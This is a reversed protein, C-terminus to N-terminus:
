NTTDLAQWGGKQRFRPGLHGLQLSCTEDNKVNSLMRKFLEHWIITKVDENEHFNNYARQFGRTL